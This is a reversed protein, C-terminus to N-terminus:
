CSVEFNPKWSLFNLTTGLCSCPQGKFDILRKRGEVKLHTEALVCGCEWVALVCGCEWVALFAGASGCVLVCGCVWVTGM